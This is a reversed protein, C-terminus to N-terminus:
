KRPQTFFGAIKGLEYKFLYSVDEIIENFSKKQYDEKSVCFITSLINIINDYKSDLILMLWGKIKAPSFEKLVKEIEEKTAKEPIQIKKSAEQYEDSEMISYFDSVINQLKDKSEAIPIDFVTKKKISVIEVPKSKKKFM